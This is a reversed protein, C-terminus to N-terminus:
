RYGAQFGKREGGDIISVNHNEDTRLLIHLVKKKLIILLYFRTANWVCSIM